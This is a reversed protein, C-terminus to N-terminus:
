VTWANKASGKRVGLLTKGGRAVSELWERYNFYPCNINSCTINFLGTFNVKGM